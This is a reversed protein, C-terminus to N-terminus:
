LSNSIFIKGEPMEYHRKPFIEGLASWTICSMKGHKERTKWSWLNKRIWWIGEIEITLSPAKKALEGTGMGFPSTSSSGSKSRSCPRSITCSIKKWRTKTKTPPFLCWRIKQEHSLHYEKMHLFYPENCVQFLFRQFRKVQVPTSSTRHLMFSKFLVNISSPISWSIITWTERLRRSGCKRILHLERWNWQLM